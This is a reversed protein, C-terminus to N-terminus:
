AEGRGGCSSCRTGDFMGEGSGDCASCIGPETDTDDPEPADLEESDWRADDLTDEDCTHRSM